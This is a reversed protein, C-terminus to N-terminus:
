NGWWFLEEIGGAGCAGRVESHVLLACIICFELVWRCIRPAVVIVCPFYWLSSGLRNTAGTMSSKFGYTDANQISPRLFCHKLVALIM